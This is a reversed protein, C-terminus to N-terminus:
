CNHHDLTAQTLAGRPFQAAPGFGRLVQSVPGLLQSAVFLFAVAIALCSFARSVWGIESGRSFFRGALRLCLYVLLLPIQFFLADGAMHLIRGTRDLRSDQDFVWWATIAYIGALSLLALIQLWIPLREKM